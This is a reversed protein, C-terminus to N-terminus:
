LGCWVCADQHVEEVDIRRGPFAIVPFMEESGTSVHRPLCLSLRSFPQHLLVSVKRWEGAIVAAPKSEMPSPLAEPNKAKTWSHKLYSNGNWDAVQGWVLYHDRGMGMSTWTKSRSLLKSIIPWIEDSV